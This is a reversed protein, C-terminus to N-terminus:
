SERAVLEKGTGSAGEILVTSDSQAIQPLVSFLKDMSTSKSVIDDFVYQKKLDKRLEYIETLDRFIEVGGIVHGNEDKLISTSVSIPIRKKDARRIICVPINSHSEGRKLTQKLVCDHQCMNARFVAHCLTGIAESRSVGTIREAAKNFSTIRWDLDVTFVGDAISDM